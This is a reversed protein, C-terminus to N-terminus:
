IIKQHNTRKQESSKGQHPRVTASNRRLHIDMIRRSFTPDIKAFNFGKNLLSLQDQTFHENSKNIVYNLIFKEKSKVIIEQLIQATNQAKLKKELISKYWAKECTSPKKTKGREEM